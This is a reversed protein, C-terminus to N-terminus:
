LSRRTFKKGRPIKRCTRPKNQTMRKWSVLDRPACETLAVRRDRFWDLEKLPLTSVKLPTKDHNDKLLECLDKMQQTGYGYLENTPDSCYLHDDVQFKVGDWQINDVPRFSEWAPEWLFWWGRYELLLNDRFEYLGM